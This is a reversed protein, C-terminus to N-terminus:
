RRGAVPVTSNTSIMRPSRSKGRRTRQNTEGHHASEEGALRTGTARRPGRGLTRKAGAGVPEVGATSRLRQNVLTTFFSKM